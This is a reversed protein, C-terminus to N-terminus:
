LRSLLLGAAVVLVTISITVVLTRKLLGILIPGM